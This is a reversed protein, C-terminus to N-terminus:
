NSVMKLTPHDPWSELLERIRRLFKELVPLCLLVEEVNSDYYIDYPRLPVQFIYLVTGTYANRRECMYKYYRWRIGELLM